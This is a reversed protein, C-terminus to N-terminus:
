RLPAIRSPDERVKEAILDITYNSTHCWVRFGDRECLIVYLCMERPAVDQALAWGVIKWDDDFELMSSHSEGDLQLKRSSNEDTFHIPSIRPLDKEDDTRRM